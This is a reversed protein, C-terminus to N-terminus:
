LIGGATREAARHREMRSDLCRPCIAEGAAVLEVGPLSEMRGGRRVYVPGTHAYTAIRNSRIGCGTCRTHPADHRAKKAAQTHHHLKTM